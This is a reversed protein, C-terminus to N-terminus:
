LTAPRLGPRARQRLAMVIAAIAMWAWFLFASVFVVSTLLLAGLVVGFWGFWRPLVRSRLIEASACWVSLASITGALVVCLYGLEGMLRISNADIQALHYDHAAFAPLTFVAIALVWFGVSVLGTGFALSSTPAARGEVESFLDHLAGLFCLVCLAGALFVLMGVIQRTEHAGYFARITADSSETDPASSVIHLAITWLVVGVLALVWSWREWVRMTRGEISTIRVRGVTPRAVGSCM